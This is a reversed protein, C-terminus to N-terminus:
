FGLAMRLPHVTEEIGYTVDTGARAPDVYTGFARDWVSFLVGLNKGAHAPDASHHVHHFRPTVIVSELRGSHWSANMHMWNNSLVMLYGWLVFFLPPAPRLLPLALVFPLNAMVVQPLSARIGALWYLARPAHHWRHVRWFWATHWLRHMWYAGCDVALVFVIVRFLLPLAHIRWHVYDPVPIRDTVQVAGYYFAQYTALAAVDYLLLKRYSVERAPWFYEVAFFAAGIIWYIAMFKLM